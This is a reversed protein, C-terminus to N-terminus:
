GELAGAKVGLGTEVRLVAELSIAGPGHQPDNERKARSIIGAQHLGPDRLNGSTHTHQHTHILSVPGAFM